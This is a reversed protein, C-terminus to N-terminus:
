DLKKLIIGFYTGASNGQIKTFGYKKYFNVGKENSNGVCLHVGASETQRLHSILADVLLHGVGIRQFNPLIDIHLHSPYQAGLAVLRKFNARCGFYQMLSNKKIIPLYKQKFVSIYKKYDLACMVYGVAVDNEDVAVFTNSEELLYYDCYLAYLLPQKTTFYKTTTALCVARVQKFDTPKYKRITVM